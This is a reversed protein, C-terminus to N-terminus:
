ILSLFETWTQLWFSGGPDSQEVQKNIMEQLDYVENYYYM